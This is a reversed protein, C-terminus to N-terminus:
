LRQWAVERRRARAKGAVHLLARDREWRVRTEDDVLNWESIEVLAATDAILGALAIHVEPRSPDGDGLLGVACVAAAVRELHAHDWGSRRGVQLLWGLLAGHVHLDEVTRFPKLYRDYGDGPLREGPLVEVDAFRVAAHPIEPVFPAPPAQELRVGVRDGPVRVLCLRNRGAADIGTSAVVLLQEAFAGLTVFSKHGHLRLEGDTEILATHMASPHTAGGETACLAARKGRVDPVLAALAETYGSAFAFGLRDARFGGAIARDIWTAFGGAAELHHTWWDLVGGLPAPTPDGVLVRELILEM